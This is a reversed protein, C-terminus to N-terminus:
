ASGPVAGATAPENLGAQVERLLRMLTAVQGADLRSTAKARVRLAAEVMKEWVAEAAPAVQVFKRRRDHPCAVRRIWAQRERRDLLGVRTPPEILMREALDAQTLPGDHVLWALVQWQRFTIGHAALEENFAKQTEQATRCVWYGLSEEFDYQRM